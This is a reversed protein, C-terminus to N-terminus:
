GPHVSLTGASSDQLYALVPADKPVGYQETTGAFIIKRQNATLTNGTTADNPTVSSSAVFCVKAAQDEATIRVPQNVFASLDLYAWSAGTSVSFGATPGSISRAAADSITARKVLAM